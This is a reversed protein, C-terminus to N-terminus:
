NDPLSAPEIPRRADFVMLAVALSTMSEADDLDVGLTEAITAL